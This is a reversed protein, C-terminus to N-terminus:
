HTRPNHSLRKNENTKNLLFHMNVKWNKNGVSDASVPCYVDALYDLYCGNSGAKSWRIFNNNITNECIRRAKEKNGYTNISMIGYPYRTNDGGEAKYIADAINSTTTSLHLCLIVINTM